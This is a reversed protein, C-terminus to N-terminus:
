TAVKKVVKKVIKKKPAEAAVPEAEAEPEEEKVPEEQVPAPTPAPTPEVFPAVEPKKSKVPEFETDSDETYAPLVELTLKKAEPQKQEITEVDADSLQIHCKGFVSEMIQPKVVCQVLKWTLGWGKGGIWIGGCAIVSAVNSQKPVLDIPSVYNPSPFLLNMKTDYIEVKWEDGYKPVKPRLSPPRSTDTAKTEKNKPYKLFPFYGYEVIERSQKKGFWAESNKVADTILLEEFEKLKQLALNTEPTAFDDNPFNLSITFKGDSEGTKEDTYDSIGWTMMLPLTLHISRNTQTSIVNISKGGKDNIKPAMYKKASPTWNSMNIVASSSKNSSM